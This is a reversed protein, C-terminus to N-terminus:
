LFTEVLNYNATHFVAMKRTYYDAISDLGLNEAIVIQRSIEDVLLLYHEKDLPIEIFFGDMNM